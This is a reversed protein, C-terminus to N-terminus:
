RGFFGEDDSYSEISSSSLVMVLGFAVLFLTTGLLLVYNRNEAAFIRRVPVIAVAPRGPRATPETRRPPRRTAPPRTTM